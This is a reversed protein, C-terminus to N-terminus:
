KVREHDRIFGLKDYSLLDGNKDIVYYEGLSDGVAKLAPQGDKMFPRADYMKAGNVYVEYVGGSRKITTTMEVPSSTYWEGTRSQDAETTPDASKAPDSPDPVVCEGDVCREGAPCNASETCEGVAPTEHAASATGTSASASSSGREKSSGRSDQMPSEATEGGEGSSSGFFAFIGGGAVLTVLVVLAQTLWSQTRWWGRITGCPNAVDCQPCVLVRDSVRQRCRKCKKWAM